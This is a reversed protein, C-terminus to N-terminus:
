DEDGLPVVRHQDVVDAEDADMPLEEISEPGPEAPEEEIRQQVVDSEPQEIGFGTM